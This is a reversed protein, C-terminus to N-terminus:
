GYLDSLPKVKPVLTVFGLDQPDDPGISQDVDLDPLGLVRGLGGHHDRHVGRQIFVLPDISNVQLISM